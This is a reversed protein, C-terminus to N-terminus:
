LWRKYKTITIETLDGTFSLENDGVNFKIKSYDGIVQRNTLVNTNTDWAEMLNTDITMDNHSSLDVELVESGNIYIHTTGTGALRFIPKSYINGGNTIVVSNSSLASVGLIFPMDDNTQSINTTGQKSQATYVNELQTALTGTIKTYTPTALIYKVETNHTSLWTKFASATNYTTNKVVLRNYTSSNLFAICNNSLHSYGTISTQGTYYDCYPTFTGLMYNVLDNSLFVENGSNYSWNEDESGDLVVSGIENKLYWEGSGYPEYETPTSSKELMPYIRVNNLITGSDVNLNIFCNDLNDITDTKTPNNYDAKCKSNWTNLQLIGVNVGQPINECSMTYTGNYTHLNDTGNGGNTQDIRCGVNATATGNLTFSGDGNNTFTIGSLSRGTTIPQILNKGSNRIFKDQYDGIKNLEYTGLNIPYTAGTYPTYTLDNTKSVIPALTYVTDVVSSGYGIRMTIFKCNANTPTYSGSSTNKSSFGLSVLNEDFQNVLIKTFLSNGTDYYITEGYSCPILNGHRAINYSVGANSVDNFYMDSQTCKLKYENTNAGSVYTCKVFYNSDTTLLLNKGCVVIENDGSVSHIGQPYDPNPSPTIKTPTSGVYPEYTDDSVSSLRIMPKFLVNINTLGSKVYLVVQVSTNITATDSSTDTRMLTAYSNNRDLARAYYDTSVGLGSSLTLSGNLSVANCVRVYANSSSTSGTAKVSGDDNFEFTIGNHTFKNDSWTGQTNSTKIDALDYPILQKGSYQVQSTNGKLNVKMPAEETPTLTLTEGEGEVYEYEGEVPTETLPYKFPQVRMQVTATRFKILKEYDIQNIIKFNYVKDNEGSFVIEGEANFFAIVKDIDYNGYLGIELEKDYSDYGLETIISGNRGDITEELVRMPPKSINPMTKIALGEITLSSVGNIEVYYRM